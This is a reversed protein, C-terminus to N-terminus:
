SDNVQKTTLGKFTAVPVNSIVTYLRKKKSAGERNEAVKRQVRIRVRGPVGKVGNKWLATNLSGDVRNDKTKMLKGVLARIKKVATAARSAFKRGKILKSLHVTLDFTVVDPKRGTHKRQAARTLGRGKKAVGKYKSRAEESLKGLRKKWASDDKRKRSEVAKKRSDLIAKKGEKKLIKGKFSKRGM